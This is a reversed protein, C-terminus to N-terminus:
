LAFARLVSILKFFIFRIRFRGLCTKTKHPTAFCVGNYETLCYYYYFFPFFFVRTQGSLFILLFLM